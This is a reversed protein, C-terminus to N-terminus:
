VNQKKLMYVCAHVHGLCGFLCSFNSKSTLKGMSVMLWVIKQFEDMSATIHGRCIMLQCQAEIM